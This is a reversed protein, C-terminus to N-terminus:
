ELIDNSKISGVAMCWSFGIFCIENNISALLQIYHTNILSYKAHEKLWDGVCTIFVDTILTKHLYVLDPTHSTYALASCLMSFTLQTQQGDTETVACWLM